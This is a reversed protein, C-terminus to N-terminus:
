IDTVSIFKSGAIIEEASKSYLKENSFPGHKEEYSHVMQYGIYYGIWKPLPSRSKGYLFIFHNNVGTINLSPIFHKEWIENAETFSYLNVWPGVLKEGHLDKVAYEGLGEIILSDKLTIKDPALNLHDLRCVHNYEHTLLAKIEETTLETSLFLFLAGRYAVGNKSPLQEGLELRVSRIPFIYISVHPGNWRKRLFRYHQKVIEWVKQEEMKKVVTEVSKWEHPTFLGHRSLEYQWVERNVKPVLKELPGCIIECHMSSVDKGRQEKCSQVFQNLWNQTLIVPM